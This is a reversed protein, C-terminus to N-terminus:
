RVITEVVREILGLCCVDIGFLVLEGLEGRSCKCMQVNANSQELVLVLVFVRTRWEGTCGVNGANM